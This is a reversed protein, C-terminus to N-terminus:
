KTPFKCCRMPVLFIETAQRCRHDVAYRSPSTIIRHSLYSKHELMILSETGIDSKSCRSLSGRAIYAVMLRTPGSGFRVGDKTGSIFPQFLTSSLRADLRSCNFSHSFLSDCQKIHTYHGCLGPQRLTCDLRRDLIRWLLFIYVQIEKEERRWREGVM